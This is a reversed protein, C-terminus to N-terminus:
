PGGSREPYYLYFQTYFAESPGELTASGIGLLLDYSCKDSRSFVQHSQPPRSAKDTLNLAALEKEFEEDVQPAAHIPQKFRVEEEMEDEPDM